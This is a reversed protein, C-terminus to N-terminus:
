LLRVEDHTRGFGNLIQCHSQAPSVDRESPVHLAHVETSCVGVLVGSVDRLHLLHLQIKQANSGVVIDWRKRPM